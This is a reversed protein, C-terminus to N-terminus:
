FEWIGMTEKGQSARVERSDWSRDRRKTGRRARTRRTVPKPSPAEEYYDEDEETEDKYEEETESETM